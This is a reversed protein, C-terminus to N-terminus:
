PLSNATGQQLVQSIKEKLSQSSFPKQIFNMGEDLVGHHTIVNTPYGSMYLVRIEERRSAILRYLTKGNSDPLVVDALLLHIPESHQDLLSLAEAANQATLVKYGANTLIKLCLERVQVQDEVLLITESGTLAPSPDAEEQPFISVPKAAQTAFFIRFVTGAGRESYVHIFAGHQKVIGYVTALGLGTGKGFDKTTFFPEFVRSQTEKDMGVGTDSVTLVAYDGPAVVDLTQSEEPDVHRTNTGIILRGGNPMADQANLALNVLIQEIQVVDGRVAPLGLALDLEMLIDERLTRRLIQEFKHIVQNLDLIKMELTQRRAFALLQRILDRSHEAARNIEQLSEQRPDNLPIEEALLECHGLIPTLMNNLDHAVGGALRGVSEIKQAQVLQEELKKQQEESQKRPTIDQHTGSVRLAKGGPNRQIVRGKNLIWLWHGDKHHFRYEAEFSSTAGSLHNELHRMTADLDEPHILGKWTEYQTTLDGLSYGAIEAWRHDFVYQGSEVDWDWIGMDAGELAMNLREESEKLATSAKQLKQLHEKEKQAELLKKRYRRNSLIWSAIGIIVAIFISTGIRFWLTQWWAPVVTLELTTGQENWVGENNSAKVRFHYTGPNLNTYVARRESGADRWNQDFGELMYKYQNREPSRFSLAAFQFSISAIRSPVALHRTIAISKELFSGRQGPLDLRSDIELGTIAVPPIFDNHLIMRADFINLGQNGGFILEGNQRRWCANRNFYLGQLGNGKDYVHSHRTQPDFCVLGKSTGIWLMGQQDELLSRVLASTLGDKVGFSEFKGTQINLHNLGGGNTAVWLNGDRDEMIDNILNHSLSAPQGPQSQYRQWDDSSSNWKALGAHTGAWIEGARSVMLCYVNNHNLSRPNAPDYRYHTFQNKSPDYRDVGGGFTAIWIRHQLDEVIGFIFASSLSNNNGPDPRYHRFQKTRPDFRDVGGKWSGIWINGLYDQWLAFVANASLSNPNKPNHAYSMWKQTSNQYYCLGAKDTGVWLNGSRDELTSHINDDPLSGPQFPNSHFLQFSANLRNAYSIGTPLHGIWLDGNRDQCIASITDSVLTASDNKINRFHVFNRTRPEFRSLGGGDTGFWMRGEQDCLIADVKNGQLAGPDAPVFPYNEFARHEHDFQSLGSSTGVWLTGQLDEGISSVRNAGLSRPNKPDHRYVQFQQTVPDFRKLGGEETGIWIIGKSDRYLDLISDNRFSDLNQPENQFSSFKGTKLDMRYLASESTGIWLCKDEELLIRRFSRSASQRSATEGLSFHIFDETERRWLDLGGDVGIWINGQRDEVIDWVVNNSISRPDSTNHRYTKFEHSDFRVLGDFTAFWMFGTHDQLIRRVQATPLGDEPRFQRFNIRSQFSSDAAFVFSSFSLMLVFWKLFLSSRAGLRRLYGSVHM